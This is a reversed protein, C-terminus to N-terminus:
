YLHRLYINRAANIDRDTHHGCERCHYTKGSFKERVYGCATCARTTFFEDVIKFGVSKQHCKFALRERFKGYRIKVLRSKYQPKLVGRKSIISVPSMDGLVIQDYHDTLYGAVKWHMDDVRHELKLNALRLARRGRSNNGWGMKKSHQISKVRREWDKVVDMIGDGIALGHDNSYGSLLTRYGPDLAVSEHRGTIPTPIEKEQPVYLNWKGTERHYRLTSSRSDKDWQYPLRHGGQERTARIKKFVPTFFGNCSFKGKEITLVQSPKDVLPPLTFSRLHGKELNTCCTDYNACAQKVALNLTHIRVYGDKKGNGMKRKSKESLRTTKKKLMSRLTPFSVSPLPLDERYIPLGDQLEYDSCEQLAMKNILRRAYNYMKTCQTVWHYAIKKQKETFHISVTECRTFKKKTPKLRAPLKQTVEATRTKRVTTYSLQQTKKWKLKGPKWGHKRYMHIAQTLKSKREEVLTSSASM